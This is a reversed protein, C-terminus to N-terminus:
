FQSIEEGVKFGCIRCWFINTQIKKKEDTRLQEQPVGIIWYSCNQCFYAVETHEMDRNLTIASKFFFANRNEIFPGIGVLKIGKLDRAILGKKIALEELARLVYKSKAFIIAIESHLGTADEREREYMFNILLNVNCGM